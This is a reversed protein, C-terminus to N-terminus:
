PPPATRRRSGGSRRRPPPPPGRRPPEPPSSRSRPRNWARPLRAPLTVGTRSLHRHALGCRRLLREVAEVDAARRQEGIEVLEVHVLGIELGPHRRRRAELEEHARQRRAAVEQDSGAEFLHHLEQFRGAEAFPLQAPQALAAAKGFGGDLEEGPPAKGAVHVGHGLARHDEGVFGDQPDSGRQRHRLEQFRADDVQQVELRQDGALRRAHHQRRRSAREDVEAQAPRVARLGSQEGRPGGVDDAEGAGGGHRGLRDEPDGDEAGHGVGEDLGVLVLGLGEEVEGAGPRLRHHEQDVGVVGLAGGPLHHLERRLEGRFADADVAHADVRAIEGLVGAPHPADEVLAPKRLHADERAAADVLVHDRTVQGLAHGDVAVADARTQGGGVVPGREVAGVLQHFVGAPGAALQGLALGGQGAALLDEAAM